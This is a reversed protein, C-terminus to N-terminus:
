QCRAVRDTQQPCGDRYSGVHGGGRRAGGGRLAEAKKISGSPMAARWGSYARSRIQPLTSWGPPPECGTDKAWITSSPRRRNRRSRPTLCPSAADNPSSRAARGAACSGSATGTTSKACPSIPRAQAVFRQCDPNVCALTDLNPRQMLDEQLVTPRQRCSKM